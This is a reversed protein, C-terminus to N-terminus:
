KDISKDYKEPVHKRFIDQMLKLDKNQYQNKRYILCIKRTENYGEIFFLRIGSVSSEKRCFVDPAFAAGMGRAVLTLATEVNYCTITTKPLFGCDSLIRRGIKGLVQKETLLIFPFDLRESIEIFATEGNSGYKLAILDEPIEAAMKEPVALLIQEEALIESQYNLTDPHPVDVIFDLEGEELLQRLIYTPEEVIQIDCNGAERCFDELIDPLIISSRHPSIGIRIYHRLDQSIDALKDSLQQRSYLVSSAWDCFLKGAYTPRLEGNKREFLEIGLEKELSKLSLSLSPQSIYLKQAARTISKEKSIMLVYQFQNWNM